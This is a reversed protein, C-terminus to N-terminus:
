TVSTLCKNYYTEQRKRIDHCIQTWENLMYVSANKRFNVSSSNNWMMKNVSDQDFKLGTGILPYIHFDVAEYLVTKPRCIAQEYSIIHDRLVKIENHLIKHVLDYMMIIDGKMGGYEIRFLICWVTSNNSAIYKPIQSNAGYKICRNENCLYSVVGLIWKHISECPRINAVMLWILPGFSEHIFVDEIMIIPLRRYVLMYDIKLLNDCAYLAHDTFGRRIAKQLLSKLLPGSSANFPVADNDICYHIQLSTSHYLAIQYFQKNYKIDVYKLKQCTQDHELGIKFTDEIKYLCLEEPVTRKSAINLFQNLTGQKM